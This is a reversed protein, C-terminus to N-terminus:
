LYIPFYIYLLHAWPKKRPGGLDIPGLRRLKTHSVLPLVRPQNETVYLHSVAPSSFYLPGALPQASLRERASRIREGEHTENPSM